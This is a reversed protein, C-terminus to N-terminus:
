SFSFRDLCFIFEHFLSQKFLFVQTMYLTVSHAQKTVFLLLWLLLCFCGLVVSDWAWKAHLRISDCTFLRSLSYRTTAHRTHINCSHDKNMNICAGFLCLCVCMCDVRDSHSSHSFPTISRLEKKENITKIEVQIAFHSHSYTIIM